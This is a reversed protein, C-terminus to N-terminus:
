SAYRGATEGSGAPEDLLAYQVAFAAAELRSHVGLKALTSQVHTRITAAGVRLEAAMAATDQGAVLLALCQRERPTLYSALRRADEQRATAPQVAAAAPVELVVEGRIVRDIAAALITVGRTKHVYGAAGAQMARMVTASDAYASLVLVKTGAHAAVIQSIACIGDDDGFYSDVLCVDPRQQRVARIMETVTQAKTVAYGRESLVSSLADVFVAHDDGLVLTRVAILARARLQQRCATAECM